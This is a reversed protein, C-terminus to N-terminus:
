KDIQKPSHMKETCQNYNGYEYEYSGKVLYTEDMKICRYILSGM